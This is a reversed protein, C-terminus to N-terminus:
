AKDQGWVCGYLTLSTVDAPAGTGSASLTLHLNANNYSPSGFYIASNDSVIFNSCREITAFGLASAPILNSTGGQGTLVLAVRKGVIRKGTVSGETWSDKVTVASSALNAM